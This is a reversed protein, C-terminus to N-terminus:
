DDIRALRKEAELLKVMAAMSQLVRSGSEIAQSKNELRGLEYKLQKDLATSPQQKKRRFPFWIM